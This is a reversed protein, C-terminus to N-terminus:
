KVRMGLGLRMCLSSDQLLFVHRTKTVNVFKVLALWFFFANNLSVTPAAKKNRMLNLCNLSSVHFLPALGPILHEEAFRSSCKIQAKIQVESTIM